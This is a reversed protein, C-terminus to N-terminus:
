KKGGEIIEFSVRRKAIMVKIYELMFCEPTGALLAKIDHLVAEALSKEPGLKGQPYEVSVRVTSNGSRAVKDDIRIVVQSM